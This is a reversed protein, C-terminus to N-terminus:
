LGLQGHIGIILFAKNKWKEKGNQNNENSRNMSVHKPSGMYEIQHDFIKSLGFAEKNGM